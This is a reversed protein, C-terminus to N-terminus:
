VMSFGQFLWPDMSQEKRSLKLYQLLDIEERRKCSHHSVSHPLSPVHTEVKTLTQPQGMERDALFLIYPDLLTKVYLNFIRDQPYSILM